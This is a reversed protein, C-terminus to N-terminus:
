IVTIQSQLLDPQRGITELIRCNDSRNNICELSDNRVPTLIALWDKMASRSGNLKGTGAANVAAPVPMQRM